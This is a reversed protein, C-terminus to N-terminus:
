SSINFIKSYFKQIVTWINIKKNISPIGKTDFSGKMTIYPVRDGKGLYGRQSCVVCNDPTDFKIPEQTDNIGDYLVRKNKIGEGSFYFMMKKVSESAVKQNLFFVSPSEIDAGTIYGRKIHEKRELITLLDDKIVKKSYIDLCNLCYGAFPIIVICQGLIAKLSNNEVEIISNCIFNPIGDAISRRSIAINTGANDVCAFSADAPKVFEQAENTLFSKRLTKVEVNPNVKNVFKKVADVKYKGRIADLKTIGQLRNLNTLEIKDFDVLLLTKINLRAMSEAVISGTGGAGIVAVTMDSYIKNAYPGFVQITRRTIEKDFKSSKIPSSNPYIIKAYNSYMITVKDVAIMSKKKNYYIRADLTNFDYDFVIFAPTAEKFHKCINPAVRKYDSKDDTASFIAPSSGEPHTHCQLIESRSLSAQKYVMKVFTTSLEMGSRSRTLYDKESPIILQTVILKIYGKTTTKHALWVWGTEFEIINACKKFTEDYIQPSIVIETRKWM